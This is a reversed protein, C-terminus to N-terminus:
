FRFLRNVKVVFARNRLAPYGAGTTDREDTYVVFLESGPHYEWRFRANTSFTRDSSSYQLLASVFMWPSFAFDTRSRLLTTTFDGTSLEVRNISVTPEISLQPTVSIRATSLGVARISGDYFDGAQLSVRGTARRQPGFTYAAQVDSFQYVGPAITVAPSIPFPRFLREYNATVEVNLQDGREFETNFRGKQERSELVGQGTEIYELSGEWTFRRVSPISRPRPSFRGLAFSRRINDRRVFGVEPNFNDGVMLHDAQVGYTDGAYEFHGQYSGDERELGPTVSRAAYASLYVDQFFAFTGDVGFAQNSGPAVVSESRNTFMAGVSSRRLIDRKVRLVTFATTPTRTLDDEDAQISVVGLGVGGAKGTLRGGVNIPIV